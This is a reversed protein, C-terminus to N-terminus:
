AKAARAMLRMFTADVLVRRSSGVRKYALRGDRMFYYVNRRSLGLLTAAHEVLVSSGERPPSLNPKSM